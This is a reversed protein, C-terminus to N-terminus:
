LKNREFFNLNEQVVELLAKHKSKSTQNLREELKLFQEAQGSIFSKVYLESLIGNDSLYSLMEALSVRIVKQNSSNLASYSDLKEEISKDKILHKFYIKFLNTTDKAESAREKFVGIIDQDTPGSNTFIMSKSNNWGTCPIHQESDFARQRERLLGKDMHAVPTDIRFPYLTCAKPKFSYINCFGSVDLNPCALEPHNLSVIQPHVVVKRNSKTTAYFSLNEKSFDKMAKSYSDKEKEIPVNRVDAVAYIGVLPFYNYYRLLAERMTLSISGHCCGTCNNCDFKIM